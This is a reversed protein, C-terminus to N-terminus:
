LKCFDKIWYPKKISCKDVQSSILILLARTKFIFDDIAKKSSQPYTYSVNDLTICFDNTCEFKRYIIEKFCQFDLYYDIYKSSIISNTYNRSIDGIMNILENFMDMCLILFGIEYKGQIIQYAVFFMMAIYPAYLVIRSIRNLTESKKHIAIRKDNEIDYNEEWREYFYYFLDSIVYEQHRIKGYGLSLFYQQKKSLINVESWVDGISLMIKKSYINFAVVVILYGLAIFLNIKSLFFCYIILLLASNIYSLFSNYLEIIAPLAKSKVQYIINSSEYSEYYEWNINSAKKLFISKFKINIKKDILSWLVSKFLMVVKICVIVLLYILLKKINSYFIESNTISFFGNAFAQVALLNFFIEVASLMSIFTCLIYATKSASFIFKNAFLYNKLTHGNEKKM